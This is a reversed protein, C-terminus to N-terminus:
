GFAMEVFIRLQSLVYNLVDHAPDLYDIGIFPIIVNESLTYVADAVVNLELPL